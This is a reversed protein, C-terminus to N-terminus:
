FLALPLQELSSFTRWVRGYAIDDPRIQDPVMAPICGARWAAEVGVTSDELVLCREPPLGLEKAALLFIDPAPKTYEVMDGGVRIDFYDELGASELFADIVERLNSSGVAVPIGRERLLELLARVGPKVPLGYKDVYDRLWDEIFPIANDMFFGPGYHKQFIQECAKNSYGITERAVEETVPFGM